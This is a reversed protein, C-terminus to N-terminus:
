SYSFFIQELRKSFDLMGSKLESLYLPLSANDLSEIDAYSVKSFVRNLSKVLSINEPRNNEGTIDNLYNQIHAMSYNVSRIFDHNFLVQHLVNQNYNTSRYNKLHLEFGSISLLFHKWYIIDRQNNLDYDLLKYQKNTMEITLLCREIYRGLNMFSWGLGRPMTTDTVGVYLLIHRTLTEITQFTNFETLNEAVNPYNILHYLQNVHEWVEKTINDQVGRANERAKTIIVKLSNTNEPELLLQYLAAEVDKELFTIQSNNGTTFVELTYRWLPIENEMRKDFSLAYNTRVIRLLSEAREMYRNLWFLSDAIRSLMYVRIKNFYNTFM